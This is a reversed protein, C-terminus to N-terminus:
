GELFHHSIIYTDDRAGQYLCLSLDRDPRLIHLGEQWGFERPESCGSADISIIRLACARVGRSGCVLGRRCGRILGLLGNLRLCACM